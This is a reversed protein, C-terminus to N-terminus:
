PSRELYDFVFQQIDKDLLSGREARAAKLGEAMAARRTKIHPYLFTLSYYLALEKYPEDASKLLSLCETLADNAHQQLQEEVRERRAKEDPSLPPPARKGGNWRMVRGAEEFRAGAYRVTAYKSEQMELGLADDSVNGEWGRARQGLRIAGLFQIAYSNDQLLQRTVVTSNSISLPFASIALVGPYRAAAPRRELIPRVAQLFANENKPDLRMAVYSVRIQTDLSGDDMLKVIVPLAAEGFKPLIEAAYGAEAGGALILRGIDNTASAPLESLQRLAFLAETRESRDLSTQLVRLEKEAPTQASCLLTGCLISVVTTIFNKLLTPACM